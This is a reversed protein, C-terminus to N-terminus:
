WKSCWNYSFTKYLIYIKICPLMFIIFAHKFLIIVCYDGHKLVRTKMVLLIYRMNSACTCSSLRWSLNWMSQFVSMWPGGWKCLSIYLGRRLSGILM